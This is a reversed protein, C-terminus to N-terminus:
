RRVRELTDRVIEDILPPLEEEPLALCGGSRRVFAMSTVAPEIEIRSDRERIEVPRGPVLGLRERLERPIVVRGAADVASRM